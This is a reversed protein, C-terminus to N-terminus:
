RICLFAGDALDAGVEFGVAGHVAEELAVDAGPLGEDGEGGHEEGDLGAALGGEHGGGLDEGFLM